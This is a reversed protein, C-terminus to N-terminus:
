GTALIEGPVGGAAEFALVHGYCVTHADAHRAFRLYQWRSFGLVFSFCVVDTPAGAILM